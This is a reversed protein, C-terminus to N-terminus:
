RELDSDKQHDKVEELAKMMGVYISRIEEENDTTVSSSSITIRLQKLTRKTEKNAMGELRRLKGESQALGLQIDMRNSTFDELLEALNSSLKTLEKILEPGRVKLRYYNRINRVNRLVVISIILSTLSILFGIVTMWDAWLSLLERYNM